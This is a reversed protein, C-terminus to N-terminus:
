MCNEFTKARIMIRKIGNFFFFFFQSARTRLDSFSLAPTISDILRTARLSCFSGDDSSLYIHGTCRMILFSELNLSSRPQRVHGNYLTSPYSGTYARSTRVTLQLRRLAFASTVAIITGSLHTTNAHLLRDACVCQVTCVHVHARPLM